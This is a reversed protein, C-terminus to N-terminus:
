GDIQNYIQMIDKNYYYCFDLPIKLKLNKIKQTSFIEKYNNNKLLKMRKRESFCEKIYSIRLSYGSSINM